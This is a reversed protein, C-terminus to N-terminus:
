EKDGAWGGDGIAKELEKAWAWGSVVVVGAGSRLFKRGYGSRFPAIYNNDPCILASSQTIYILTFSPIFM